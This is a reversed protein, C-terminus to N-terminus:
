RSPTGYKLNTLKSYSFISHRIHVVFLNDHDNDTIVPPPSIGLAEIIDPVTNSHGAVLIEGGRYDSNIINVLEETNAASIIVPTLGLNATTPAVTLQTRQYQTAFIVDIGADKVVHSLIQARETGEPTLLPDGPPSAAKEAHRVLIVTTVSGSWCFYVFIFIVLVCLILVPYCYTKKM